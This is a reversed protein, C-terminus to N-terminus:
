LPTADDLSDHTQVLSVLEYRVIEVPAHAQAMRSIWVKITEDVKEETVIDGPMYDITHTSTFGVNTVGQAALWRAMERDCFTLKVTARYFKAPTKNESM